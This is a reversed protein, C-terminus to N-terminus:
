PQQPLKQPPELQPKIKQIFRRQLNFLILDIVRKYFPTPRKKTHKSKLSFTKTEETHKLTKQEM